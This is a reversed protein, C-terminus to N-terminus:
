DSAKERQKQALKNGKKGGGTPLDCPNKSNKYRKAFNNCM